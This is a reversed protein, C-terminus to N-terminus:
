CRAVAALEDDNMERLDVDVRDIGEVRLVADRVRSEIVSWTGRDPIPLAIAVVVTSGDIATGQVLGLATIPLGVDPEDVTALAAEVAAPTPAM